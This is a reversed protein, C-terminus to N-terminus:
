RNSAVWPSFYILDPYTTYITHFHLPISTESPHFSLYGSRSGPGPVLHNILTFRPVPVLHNLLTSRPGSSQSINTKASYYCSSEVQHLHITNMVSRVLQTSINTLQLRDWNVAVWAPWHLMYRSAHIIKGAPYTSSHSTQGPVDTSYYLDCIQIPDIDINRLLLLLDTMNEVSLLNM